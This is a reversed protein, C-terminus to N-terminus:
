RHGYSGGFRSWGGQDCWGWNPQDAPQDAQACPDPSGTPATAIVPPQAITSDAAATPAAAIAVAAAGAALVPTLYNLRIRMTTSRHDVKDPSMGSNSVLSGLDKGSVGMWAHGSAPIPVPLAAPTEGFRLRCRAAAVRRQLFEGFIDDIPSVSRPKTLDMDTATQRRAQQDRTGAPM